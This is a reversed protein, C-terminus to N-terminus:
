YQKQKAIKKKKLQEKSTELKSNKKIDKAMKSSQIQIPKRIAKIFHSQCHHIPIDPFVEEFASTLVKQKDAILGLIPLKM